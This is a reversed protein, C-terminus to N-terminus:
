KAWPWIGPPDLFALFHHNKVGKELGRPHHVPENVVFPKRAQHVRAAGHVSWPAASYTALVPHGHVPTGVVPVRYFVRVWRPVGYVCGRTGYVGLNLRFIAMKLRFHGNEAEFHGNEALFLM